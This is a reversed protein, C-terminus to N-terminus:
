KLLLEIKDVCKKISFKDMRNYSKRSMEKLVKRNEILFKMHKSLNESGYDLIFGNEGDEIMESIGGTNTAIVPLSHGMAELISLPFSEFSSPLIFLDSEILLTNVDQVFGLLEINSKLTQIKETLQKKLMGDGAIKLKVHESNQFAVEFQDILWNIGKDPDLRTVCLIVLPIKDNDRNLVSAPYSIGNNIVVTKKDQFIEAVAKQYLVVVKDCWFFSFNLLLGGIIKKLGKFANNSTHRYGIIHNAKIFPAFYIPRNGNLLVNSIKHAEIYSNIFNLIKYIGFDTKLLEKQGTPLRKFLEHDSVIFHYKEPNCTNIYLNEIFKQGGGFFPTLDIILVNTM